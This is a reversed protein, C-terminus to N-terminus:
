TTPQGARSAKMQAIRADVQQLAKLRRREADQPESLVSETMPYDYSDSNLTRTTLPLITFNSPSPSFGVRFLIPHLAEPFFTVFSFSESPDGVLSSPSSEPSESSFSLLYDRRQFFRLYIWATITGTFVFSYSSAPIGLIHWIANTLLLVMPMHKVRAPIIGLVPMEVDPILQKGAVAFASIVGGFGGYPFDPM